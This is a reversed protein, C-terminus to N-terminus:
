WNELAFNSEPSNIRRLGEAIWDCVRKDEWQPASTDHLYILVKNVHEREVQQSLARAAAWRVHDNLDDLSILLTPVVQPHPIKALAEVAALRVFASRDETMAILTDVAAPARLIGLAEAAAERVSPQSDETVALIDNIISTEGVEALAHLTAIRVTPHPHDLQTRLAPATTKDRLWALVEIIHCHMSWDPHDLGSILRQNLQEHHVDRFDRASIVIQKAAILQQEWNGETLDDLLPGFVALPDRPAVTDAEPETGRVAAEVAHAQFVRKRWNQILSVAEPTNIELLTRAALDCLRGSFGTVEVEDIINLCTALGNVAQPSKTKRLLQIATAKRENSEHQLMSLLAPIAREGVQEVLLAIVDGMLASKGSPTDLIHYLISDDKIAVLHRIAQMQIAPDDSQLERVIEALQEATLDSPQPPQTADLAPAQEPQGQGKVKLLRDKAISASPMKDYEATIQSTLKRKDASSS